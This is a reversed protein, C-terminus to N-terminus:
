PASLIWLPGGQTATASLEECILAPDYPTLSNERNNPDAVLIQGSLTCGRLVIFHGNDTFHGPGMLAIMYSGMALENYLSDPDASEFSECVLGYHEAAGKVISHYSGSQPASYGESTAWDAIDAPTVYDDTLTSILMALATPGCGFGAIPDVGFLVSAWQADGQNFYTFREAGGTLYEIGNEMILISPGGDSDENLSSVSVSDEATERQLDQVSTEASASTDGGSGDDGGSAALAAAEAKKAERALRAAEAQRAREEQWEAVRADAIERVSDVYDSYVGVYYKASAYYQKAKDSTEEAFNEVPTVVKRYLKPDYIRCFLLETGGICLVALFFLLIMNRIYKKKTKMIM